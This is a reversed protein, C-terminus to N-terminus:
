VTHNADNHIYSKKMDLQANSTSLPNYHAKVCSFRDKPNGVLDTM